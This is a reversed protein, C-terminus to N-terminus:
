NMYLEYKSMKILRFQTSTNCIGNYGDLRYLGAPRLMPHHLHLQTTRHSERPPIHIITFDTSNHIREGNPRFWEVSINNPYGKYSLNWIKTINTEVSLETLNAHEWIKIECGNRAAVM